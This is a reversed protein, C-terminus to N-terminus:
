LEAWFCWFCIRTCCATRACSSIFGNTDINRAPNGSSATRCFIRIKRVFGCVIAANKPSFCSSCTGNIGDGNVVGGLLHRLNPAFV